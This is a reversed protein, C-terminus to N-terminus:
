QGARPISYRVNGRKAAETDDAGRGGDIKQNKGSDLPNQSPQRSAPIAGSITLDQGGM